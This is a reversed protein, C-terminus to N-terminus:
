SSRFRTISAIALKARAFQRRMFPLFSHVASVGSHSNRSAGLRGQELMRALQSSSLVTTPVIQTEHSAKKTYQNREKRFYGLRRAVCLRGEAAEDNKLIRLTDIPSDEPIACKWRINWDLHTSLLDFRSEILNRVDEDRDELLNSRDRISILRQKSKYSTQM